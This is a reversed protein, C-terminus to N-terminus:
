QPHKATLKLPNIDYNFITLVTARPLTYYGKGLIFLTLTMRTLVNMSMRTLAAMTKKTMTTKTVTTTMMTTKMM